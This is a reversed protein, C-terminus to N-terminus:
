GVGGTRAAGSTSVALGNVNEDDILLGYGQFTAHLKGAFEPRDPLTGGSVLTPVYIGLTVTAAKYNLDHDKHWKKVYHYPVVGDPQKTFEVAFYVHPRDLTSDRLNGADGLFLVAFPIKITMEAPTNGIKGSFECQAQFEREALEYPENALQRRRMNKHLDLTLKGLSRHIDSRVLM